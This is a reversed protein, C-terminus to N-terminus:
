LDFEVKDGLVLEINSITNASLEIVYRAPVSSKFVDPYTDPSIDEELHVVTKESDLWVIDIAYNMDKMWIGWQGEGEFDFLKVIRAPLESTGSLGQRKEDETRAVSAMFDVEKIRLPVTATTLLLEDWDPIPENVVIEPSPEPVLSTPSPKERISDEVSPLGLMIQFMAFGGLLVVGIVILNWKLM